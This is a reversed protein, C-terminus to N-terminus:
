IDIPSGSSKLQQHQFIREVTEGWDGKNKLKLDDKSMKLVLSVANLFLETSIGTEQIVELNAFDKAALQYYFYLDELPVQERESSLFKAILDEKELTSRTELLNEFHKTVTSFLLHKEPVVHNNNKNSEKANKDEAVFKLLSSM